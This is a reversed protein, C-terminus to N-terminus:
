VTMNSLNAESPIFIFGGLRLLSIQLRKCGAVCLPLVPFHLGEANPKSNGQWTNYLMDSNVQSLLTVSKYDQQWINLIEHQCLLTHITSVYGFLMLNNWQWWGTLETCVAKDKMLQRKITLPSISIPLGLLTYAELLAWLIMKFISYRCNACYSIFIILCSQFSWFLKCCSTSVPLFTAM